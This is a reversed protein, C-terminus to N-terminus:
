RKLIEKQPQFNYKAQGVILKGPTAFQVNIFSEVLYSKGLQFPNSPYFVLSDSLFKLSGPVRIEDQLSDLEGPRIFVNVLNNSDPNASYANKLQLLSAGDFNKIVISSSDASFKIIPINNTNNCAVFVTALIVTAFFKFLSKFM